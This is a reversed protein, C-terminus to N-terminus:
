GNQDQPDPWNEGGPAPIFTCASFPNKMYLNINRPKADKLYLICTKGDLNQGVEWSVGTLSGKLTKRGEPKEEWVDYDYRVDCLYRDDSDHLKGNGNQSYAKHM